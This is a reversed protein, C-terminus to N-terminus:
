SPSSSGNDICEEFGRSLKQGLSYKIKKAIWGTNANGMWDKRTMNYLTTMIVSLRTDSSKIGYRTPETPASLSITTFGPSRSNSHIVTIIILAVPRYLVSLYMRGRKGIDCYILFDRFIFCPLSVLYVSYSWNLEIWNIKYLGNECIVFKGWLAKCDTCMSMGSGFGWMPDPVVGLCGKVPAFLSSVKLLAVSSSGEGLHVSSYVDHTCFSENCV